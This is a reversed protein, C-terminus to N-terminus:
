VVYGHHQGTMYCLGTKVDKAPQNGGRHGYPLKSVTAGAALALLQHGLGVGFMPVREMLLTRLENIVGTCTRPDGAGSSLLVGDANLRLIDEATASAPVVTVGCGRETLEAVLGDKAGFDWVAVHCRGPKDAPILEQVAVEEPAPYAPEGQLKGLLETLADGEPKETLIAANMVGNDRLCRTLARTDIDTLCPIDMEKLLDDLKGQCRFNSPDDCIERCVYGAVHAKERGLDEPIVGYNGIAPFTQILIQGAYTPDTLAGLYGVVSTSFVLEATVSKNAGRLVGEFLRGNALLLYGKKDM